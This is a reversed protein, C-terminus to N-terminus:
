LHSRNDSCRVPKSLHLGAPTVDTCLQGRRRAPTAQASRVVSATSLEYDGSMSGTPDPLTAFYFEDPTSKDLSSHPRRANYFKIYRAIGARAQGVSDYAHLYVEEYKISRCLAFEFKFHSM